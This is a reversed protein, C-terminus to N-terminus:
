GYGRCNAKRISISIYQNLSFFNLTRRSLIALYEIAGGKGIIHLYFPLLFIYMCAYNYSPELASTCIYMYLIGQPFQLSPTPYSFYALHCCLQKMHIRRNKEVTKRDPKRISGSAAASNM